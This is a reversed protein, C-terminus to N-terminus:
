QAGVKLGSGDRSLSVFVALHLLASWEKGEEFEM